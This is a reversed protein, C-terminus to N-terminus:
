AQIHSTDKLATGDPLFPKIQSLSHLVILLLAAYYGYKGTGLAIAVLGMNELSSYALMRKLHKAKLM